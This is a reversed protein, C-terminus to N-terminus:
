AKECVALQCSSWTSTRILPALFRSLIFEPWAIRIQPYLLTRVVRFGQTALYRRFEEANWERVHDPHMSRMCDKGYLCDREPTSILAISRSGLHRRISALCRAPDQLHEVVDACVIVDFKRGLDIDNADLDAAVFPCDLSQRVLGEAAPQDVLVLDSCHPAILDRVKLAPGCGVDMLSTRGQGSMLRRAMVYVYYQYRRSLALREPTWYADSGEGGFSQRETLSLYGDKICYRDAM